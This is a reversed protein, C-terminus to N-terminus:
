RLRLFLHPPPPPALSVLTKLGISYIDRLEDSGELILTCLKDCIEFIQEQQVKRLLIGLCQIAKSQVDNSTDDLRKLVAACIRIEMTADIKLDKQLENCLDSTGM